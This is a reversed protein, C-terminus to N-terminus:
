EEEKKLVAANATDFRATYLLSEAEDYFEITLESLSDNIVSIYTLSKTIEIATDSGLAKGDDTLIKFSKINADDMTFSIEVLGTTENPTILYTGIQNAEVKKIDFGTTITLPGSESSPDIICDDIFKDGDYLRIKVETVADM